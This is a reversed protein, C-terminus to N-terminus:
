RGGFLVKGLRPAFRRISLAACISCAAVLVFPFGPVMSIFGGLRVSTWAVIYNFFTHLLYIPFACSVLAFPWATSPTCTWLGLLVFPTSVVIPDFPWHSVRDLCFISLFISAVLFAIWHAAPSIQVPRFRLLSGLSFYWLGELSVGYIFFGTSNRELFIPNKVTAYALVIPFAFILGPLRIRQIFWFVCPSLVVFCMLCRVYWLVGLQPRRTFDVGLAYLWQSPCLGRFLSDSFPEGRTWAHFGDWVAQFLLFLVAWVLYPILLSVLRKRIESKWWCSERFHGALFFGSVAFFFPVAVPGLVLHVARGAFLGVGESPWSLHHAVVFLSCLFGCNRIKQSTERSVNEPIWVSSPPLIKM